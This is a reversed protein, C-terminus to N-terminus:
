PIKGDAARRLAGLVDKRSVIGVLRGQHVVPFSKYRTDILRQLVRTLPLEPDVTEVDRKMATEVTERMVEEYHPVISEPTFAFARLADLKTVIGRLSGDPAVVPLANFDRREFIREVERLPTGSEVTAVDRTMAHKVRYELFEYM